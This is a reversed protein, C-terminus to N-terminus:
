TRMRRPREQPDVGALLSDSQEKPVTGVSNRFECEGVKTPDDQKKLDCEGLLTSAVAFFLNSEDGLPHKQWFKATSLRTRWCGWQAFDTSYSERGGRNRVFGTCSM